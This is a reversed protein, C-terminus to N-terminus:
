EAPISVVNPKDTADESEVTDRDPNLLSKVDELMMYLAPILFLVILTAFVIGYGLSIAMPILFKAQRSTEFIMPALGCFTTVTTLLIPRFRRMGAAVIADYAEVGRLREKNAYDIMVIGANILVGSLAVIGFISILSLGYGMIEHGIVSGVFGFPITLCIILPQFYSRFPIALLGFIVILSIISYYILDKMAAKRDAQRGELSFSLGPYDIQLQPLIEETAAAIVQATAKRPEVNATVSVVRQNEERTITSDARSNIVRAVEFLPVSGGDPTRILMSEIDAQSRREDEPRILRVTIENRGDQQRLAEVGFFAARVQTAVAASSLGLSRGAETLTFELQAKGPSFGDRADRVPGYESLESALAAAADGLISTDPHSLRVNINTGGPGGWSSEFQLSRASPIDGTAERWASVFERTQMPRVEPPKLYVRVDAETGDVSAEIGISLDDGGNAAVVKKAAEILRDRADLTVESPAGVPMNVVAKAYDRPVPPFLGFGMRGSMVYALAIAFVAACIAITVYRWNVALRILRGYLHRTVWALGGAFVWQLPGLVRREIWSLLLVLWSVPWYFRFKKGDGHSLHAPLIFLAEIWSMIFALSVVVPIAYFIKGIWGGAMALPIFAVINTIISFSLPVAIDQAGRIAAEMYRMGKQRYEYINEGVVIADDVVIGLAVIFAFMSVLNITVDTTPLLLMAGMFATPIGLAVWFALRINLFVSLLILVLSLGVMGNKLLLDKRGKFNESRDNLVIAEFAGPLTQMAGPLAAQVADSVGIPTQDGVRFVKIVRAPLGNFTVSSSEDGFSRKLEAIDGLRLVTGRSDNLIPITAFDALDERRDAMRLLLDGGSTEITGGSRDLATDRVTRAIEGLTLNYSRLVSESIEIRIELDREDEIEVRTIEENQLLATRVHEAAMRMSLDDTDGFLMVDLVPRRRVSLAVVPEEADEPFTTIGDIAAQIDNFTAQVDKDTGIELVLSGSGESATGSIDDINDLGSVANEMVLVLSQEVDAPTAGPSAVRVTATDPETNPLYEQKVVSMMMYLGGVILVTMLLNAAVSNRAMWAIPGTSREPPLM